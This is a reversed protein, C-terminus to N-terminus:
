GASHARAAPPLRALGTGARETEDWRRRSGVPRPRYPRGPQVRGASASHSTCPFSAPQASGEQVEGRRPSRCSARWILAVGFLLPCGVLSGGQRDGRGLRAPRRDYWWYILLRHASTLVIDPVVRRTM